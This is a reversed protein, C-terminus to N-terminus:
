LGAVTWLIYLCLAWTAAWLALVLAGALGQMGRREDLRDPTLDLQGNWRTHTQMLREEHLADGRKM